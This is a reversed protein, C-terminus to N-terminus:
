LGVRIRHFFKRSGSPCNGPRIRAGRIWPVVWDYWGSAMRQLDRLPATGKTLCLRAPNTM